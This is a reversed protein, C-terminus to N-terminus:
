VKTHIEGQALELESDYLSPFEEFCVKLKTLHVYDVCAM